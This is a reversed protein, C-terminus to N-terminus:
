QKNKQKSEISEILDDIEGGVKLKSRKKPVRKGIYGACQLYQIIVIILLVIVACLLIYPHSEAFQLVRNKVATASEM